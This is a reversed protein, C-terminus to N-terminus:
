AGLPQTTVLYLTSDVVNKHVTWGGSHTEAHVAIHPTCTTERLSEPPTYLSVVGTFNHVRPPPPNRFLLNPAALDSGVRLNSGPDHEGVRFLNSISTFPARLIDRHLFYKALTQVTTRNIPSASTATLALTATPAGGTSREGEFIARQKWAFEQARM